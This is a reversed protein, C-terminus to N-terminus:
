VVSKRDTAAHMSTAAGHLDRDATVVWPEEDEAGDLPDELQQLLSRTDM